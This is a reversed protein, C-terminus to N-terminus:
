KQKRTERNYTERLAKAITKRLEPDTRSTRPFRKQWRKDSLVESDGKEDIKTVSLREPSFPAREKKRGTAKRVLPSTNNLGPLSLLVDAVHHSAKWITLGREDKLRDIAERVYARRLSLEPHGVPAESPPDQRLDQQLARRALTIQELADAKAQSVRFQREVIAECIAFARSVLEVRTLKPRAGQNSRLPARSRDDAERRLKREIEQRELSAAQRIFDEISIKNRRIKGTRGGM